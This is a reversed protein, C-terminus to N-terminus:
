FKLNIFYDILYSGIFRFDLYSFFNKLFIWIDLYIGHILIFNLVGFDWFIVIKILYVQGFGSYYSCFYIPQLIPFRKRELQM